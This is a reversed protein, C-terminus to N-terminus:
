IPKRFQNGSTMTIVEKDMSIELPFVALKDGVQCEFDITYETYFEYSCTDYIVRESNSFTMTGDERFTFQEITSDSVKKDLEWKGYLWNPDSPPTSFYYFAVLGLALVGFIAKRM